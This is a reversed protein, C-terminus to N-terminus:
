ASTRRRGAAVVVAAAFLLAGALLAGAQVYSDRRGGIEATTWYTAGRFSLASPTKTLLHQITGDAQKIGLANFSARLDNLASGRTGAAHRVSGPEPLTVVRVTTVIAVAVAAVLLIAILANAYRSV